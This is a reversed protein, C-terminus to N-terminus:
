NLVKRIERYHNFITFKKCAILANKKILTIESQSLNLFQKYKILFDTENRTEYLLGAKNQKIIEKPGNNCDSSIIFTRCFCSELLVFGPDEWLSSLVFFNANKLYPYINKTYPFIQINKNLSFFSIKKELSKKEEGSGFIILKLDKDNKNIKKFIDILFSFNKQKTLRGIAIIYNNFKNEVVESKLMNIESVNIIPDPLFFLKDIPVLKLNKILDYTALTPCTIKHIKQLFIKWFFIRIFGLHPYGSIRLICKTKFNFLTFLFLPLSTILHIILYKPKQIEIIKKLKFFSMIFIIIFSFRSSIKGFKPLLHIYKFKHLCITKLNKEELEEKKESFEGSADLIYAKYEKSYRNISFASNIVAKTTAIETLFPSWYYINKKKL